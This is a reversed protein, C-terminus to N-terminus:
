VATLNIWYPTGNILIQFRHTDTTPSADVVAKVLSIYGDAGTDNKAGPSLVLNGGNAPNTVYGDQAAVTFDAGNGTTSIAQNLSPASTAATFQLSAPTILIPSSGSISSLINAGLSGTLDGALSDSDAPLPKAQIQTSGNVWTLVYGDQASGLTGSQVPNGQLGIVTQSTEDGSLDGGASFLGPESDTWTAIISGGPDTGDIKLFQGSAPEGSIIISNESGNIIFKNSM